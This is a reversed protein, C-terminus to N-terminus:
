RRLSAFFFSPNRTLDLYGFKSALLTMRMIHGIGKPLPGMTDSIVTVIILIGVEHGLPTTESLLHRLHTQNSM